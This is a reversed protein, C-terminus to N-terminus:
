ASGLARLGGIVLRDAARVALGFAVFFGVLVIADVYVFTGVDLTVVLRLLAIGTEVARDFTVAAFWGALLLVLGYGLMWTGTPVAAQFADDRAGDRAAGVQRRLQEIASVVLAFWLFAALGFGVTSPSLGVAAPVVDVVTPTARTVFVYFAAFGLAAEVPGYAPFATRPRRDAPATPHATSM